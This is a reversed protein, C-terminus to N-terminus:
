CLKPGALKDLDRVRIVIDGWGEKKSCHVAYVSKEKLKKIFEKIYEVGVIDATVYMIENKYIKVIEDSLSKEERWIEWDDAETQELHVSANTGDHCLIREYGDQSLIWFHNPEWNPRTIRYGARLNDKATEWNM